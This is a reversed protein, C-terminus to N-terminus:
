PRVVFKRTLTSSGAKAALFYTGTRGNARWEASLINGKRTAPIEAVLRGSVDLIRFSAAGTAGASWTIGVRGGAQRLTMEGNGQNKPTDTGIGTISGNLIEELSAGDLNAGQLAIQSTKDNFGAGPARTDNMATQGPKAPMDTWLNMGPELALLSMQRNVVHHDKGLTVMAPIDDTLADRGWAEVQQYSWLAVGEAGAGMTSPLDVSFDQTFRLGGWLGSIKLTVKGSGHYRGSVRVSASEPSGYNPAVVDAYKALAGSASSKMAFLPGDLYRYRINNEQLVLANSILGSWSIKVDSVGWADPRGPGYLPPLYWEIVQPKAVTSMDDVVPGGRYYYPSYIWGGIGGLNFGGTGQAVSSLNYDYWFGFLAANAGKLVAILGESWKQREEYYLKAKAEVGPMTQPDYFDPYPYYAYPDNNILVAAVASANAGRDKAFAELAAKADAKAIPRWAKLAAYAKALNEPDMTVPKPFVYAIKGKGDSLGLNGVYPAHAYAKLALLALKRSRAPALSDSADVDLIVDREAPQAELALKGAELVAKVGFYPAGTKESVWPTLCGACAAAAGSVVGDKLEEVNIAHLKLPASGIEGGGLGPWKLSYTKGDLATATLSIAGINKKATQSGNLGPISRNMLSHLIPLTASFGDRSNEMGQVFEIEVKRKANSQNPFIRLTYYGGGWTEVIAPDKRRKVIDEYQASALAREQLAAKVKVDGVWLYMDTIATNDGLMFGSTTELSDLVIEKPDTPYECRTTCGENPACAVEICRQTETLGTGPTYEIAATTTVVGRNIEVNLDLADIRTDISVWPQNQKVTQTYMSALDLAAFANMALVAVMGLGLIGKRKM